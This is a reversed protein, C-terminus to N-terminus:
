AASGMARSAGVRNAIEQKTLKGQIVLRGDEESALDITMVSASRPGSDLVM